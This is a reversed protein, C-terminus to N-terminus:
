RPVGYERVIFEAMDIDYAVPPKSEDGANHWKALVRALVMVQRDGREAVHPSTRHAHIPDGCSM